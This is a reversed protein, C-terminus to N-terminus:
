RTNHKFIIVSGSAGLGLSGHKLSCRWQNTDIQVTINVILSDFISDNYIFVYVTNIIIIENRLDKHM